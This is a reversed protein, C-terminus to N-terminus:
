HQIIAIQTPQTSTCFGVNGPEAEVWGVIPEEEICTATAKKNTIIGYFYRKRHFVQYFAAEASALPFM